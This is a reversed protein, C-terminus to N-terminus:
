KLNIKLVRSEMEDRVKAEYQNLLSIKDFYQNALEENSFRNSELYNSNYRILEKISKYYAFLDGMSITKLKDEEINSAIEKEEEIPTPAVIEVKNTNNEVVTEKIKKNTKAM